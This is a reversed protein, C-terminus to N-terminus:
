HKKPMVIFNLYSKNASNLVPEDFVKMKVLSMDQNVQVPNPSGGIVSNIVEIAGGWFSNGGSNTPTNGATPNSSNGPVAPSNNAGPSAQTVGSDQNRKSIDSGLLVMSTSQNKKSKNGVCFGNGLIALILIILSPKM